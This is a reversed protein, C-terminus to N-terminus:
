FNFETAQTRSRFICVSRGGRAPSTLALKQEYLTGYLWFSPDKRGYEGIELKSGTIKRALLEETTSVLSISGRELGV